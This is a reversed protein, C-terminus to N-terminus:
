EGTKRGTLLTVHKRVLISDATGQHIIHDSMDPGSIVSYMNTPRALAYDTLGQTLTYQSRLLSSRLHKLMSQQQLHGLSSGLYVSDCGCACQM